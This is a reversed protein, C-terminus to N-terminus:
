AHPSIANYEGTQSELGGRARKQFVHTHKKTYWVPLFLHCLWKEGGGGFDEM